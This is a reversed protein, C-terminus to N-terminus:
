GGRRWDRDLWVTVEDELIQQLVLRVSYRMLEELCEEIPRGSGFVEDIDARISEIPSVRRPM